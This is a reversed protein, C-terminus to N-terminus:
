RQSRVSAHAAPYFGGGAATRPGLEFTFGIIRQSGYAWDTFGGSNVYLSSEQMPTYGNMTAMKAALKVFAVHDRPAHRAALAKTTYGYPYLIHMGYTHLNLIVRIQQAGRVNRSLV